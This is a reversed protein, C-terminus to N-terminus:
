RAIDQETLNKFRSVGEDAESRATVNDETVATKSGM